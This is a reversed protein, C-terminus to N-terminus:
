DQAWCAVPGPLLHMKFEPITIEVPFSVVSPDTEDPGSYGVCKPMPQPLLGTTHLITNWCESKTEPLSCDAEVVRPYRMVLSEGIRAFHIEEIKGKASLRRQDEFIKKRTSAEFVGFLCGRDTCDSDDIFIFSGKVGSFYRGQWEPVVIESEIHEHTCPTLRTSNPIISIWDDGKQGWDLEKVMFRQFLHCRLQGHRQTPGAPYYPSAGLDIVIEKTARDFSEEQEQAFAAVTLPSWVCFLVALLRVISMKRDM